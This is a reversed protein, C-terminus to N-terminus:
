RLAGTVLASGLASGMVTYMANQIQRGERAYQQLKDLESAVKTYTADDIKKASLLDAYFKKADGISEAPTSNIKQRLIQLDAIQKESVGVEKALSDINKQFEKSQEGLSRAQGELEKVRQSARRESEAIRSAVTEAPEGIGGLARTRQETAIAELPEARKAALNRRREASSLEQELTRRRAATETMAERGASVRGKADNVANAASQQARRLSYFEDYLGATRLKHENNKLFTGFAEDTPVREKGFLERTFYLRASDQFGPSEDILRRMINSGIRGQNLVAGAVEASQMKQQASIPDLTLTRRIPLNREIFDLPRSLEAYKRLAEFYPPYDQRTKALLESKIQGVERLTNKDLSVARGTDLVLKKSNLIKDLYEKVDQFQQVNLRPIAKGAVDRNVLENQISAAIARLEPNKTRNVISQLRVFEDLTNIRLEPGADELMKSFGSQEKRIKDYKNYISNLAERAKEGFEVKDMGPRALLEEGLRDVAARTEAEERQLLGLQSQLRQEDAGARRLDDEIARYRERSSELAAERERYQPTMVVQPEAAQARAQRASAAESSIPRLALSETREAERAIRQQEPTLRAIEAENQAIAKQLDSIERESLNEVNSLRDKLRANFLAANVARRGIEVGVGIGGGVTGGIATPVAKELLRSSYEEEGTPTAAGYGAGVGSSALVRGLPSALKSVLRAGGAVPAAFSLINGVPAAAPYEEAAREKVGKLYSSGAASARGIDGPVLEGLGTGFGGLEAGAYRATAGWQSRLQAADPSEVPQFGRKRRERESLSPGTSKPEDPADEWKSSPADEWKSSPADEWGANTM